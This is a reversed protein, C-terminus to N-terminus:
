SSKKVQQLTKWNLNYAGIVTGADLDVTGPPSGMGIGVFQEVQMNYLAIHHNISSVIDPVIHTGEDLINTEISWKQQIEGETTLIAFKITTGGLDVGILKKDM